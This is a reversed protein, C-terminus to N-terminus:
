RVEANSTISGGLEEFLRCWPRSSRAPAAWPMGSAGNEKLYHNLANISATDFPNGGVQLPHFSFVRRLFDDKVFQAVTDYVSKYSQLRILDPAAKLM